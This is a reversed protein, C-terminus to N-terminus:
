DIYRSTKNRTNDHPEEEYLKKECVKCKSNQIYRIYDLLSINLGIAMAVSENNMEFQAGCDTCYIGLCLNGKDGLGEELAEEINESFNM